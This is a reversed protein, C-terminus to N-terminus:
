GRSPSVAPPPPPFVRVQATAADKLTAMAALGVAGAAATKFFDRRCTGQPAQAPGPEIDHGWSHGCCNMFRWRPLRFPDM